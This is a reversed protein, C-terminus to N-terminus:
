VGLACHVVSSAADTTRERVLNACPAAVVAIVFLQADDKAAVGSLMVLKERM